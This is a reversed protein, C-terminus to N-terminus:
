AEWRHRTSRTDLHNRNSYLGLGLSNPFLDDLLNYIDKPNVDKIKFDVAKGYPALGKTYERPIHSSGSVSGPITANHEVCRNGSTITLPKDYYLRLFQLIYLLTNDIYIADCGCRCSYEYQKIHKTFQM